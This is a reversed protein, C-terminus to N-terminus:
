TSATPSASRAAWRRSGPTPARRPARPRRVERTLYAARDIGEPPITPDLQFPRWRSPSRARRRADAHARLLNAAGLYCWPCVVDSVIELRTMARGDGEAPPPAAQRQRRAAAGDVAHFARPCKYRALRAACHAALEAEPPPPGHPCTSPPSSRSAPASRSARRRRGRRRRPPRAAGGRDRGPQRPLRRRELLDDARGRSVIAGDARMVARDGTVFWEGRFAAATEEPRSWYGLMLGPDRRSVALLGETGRPVPTPATTPSCPSAAAPSRTAPRATSRRAAGALLLPLDLDGVHRAGRLDAQRDRRTWAARVPAPLAEGASLGHRLGAFGRALDPADLMQRYVGPAPPSSRRATPPPSAPGSPATARAPTSRAGHRRGGLPRDPRRRPHLDLQLAGAHLVRDDPTLGYWGDWM